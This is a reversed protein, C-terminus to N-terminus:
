DFGVFRGVARGRGDFRVGERELLDKKRGLNGELRAGGKVPRTGMYGGLVGGAGLVRHCPVGPAFPNVRMATGVARASSNLKRALAAYTTWQGPGVSHLLLLYTKKRLPSLTPHSKIKKTLTQTTIEPTTQPHPPSFPSPTPSLSLPLSLSLSTQTQPQVQVQAPNPTRARDSPSPSGRPSNEIKTEVERNDLRDDNNNVNNHIHMPRHTHAQTNSKSNSKSIPSRSSLPHEHPSVSNCEHPGSQPDQAPGRGRGGSGTHIAKDRNNNNSPAGLLCALSPASLSM